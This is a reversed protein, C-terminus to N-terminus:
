ASLPFGSVASVLLDPVLIPMVRSEAYASKHRGRCLDAYRLYRLRRYGPDHPDGAPLRRLQKRWERVEATETTEGSRAHRRRINGITSDIKQYALNKARAKGRTHEPILVTETFKDLRDLYINSLVPSTVGGQPAGSLTANWEWDELYGAQLMQKILRLFRNDHIKGALASLM